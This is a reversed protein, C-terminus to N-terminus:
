SGARHLLPALAERAWDLGEAEFTVHHPVLGGPADFAGLHLSTEGPWPDGKYSLPSGCAGCFRREIGDRPRWIAVEGLFRVAPDPYDVYVAFAAGTARRCSDCHCVGVRNERGCAEFRVAGCRCGGSRVLAAETM